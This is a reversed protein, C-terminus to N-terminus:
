DYAAHGPQRWFSVAGAVLGPFMETVELHARNQVPNGQEIGFHALKQPSGPPDAEYEANRSQLRAATLRIETV